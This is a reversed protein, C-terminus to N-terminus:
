WFSKAKVLKTYGDIASAMAKNERAEETGTLLGAAFGRKPVAVNAILREDVAIDNLDGLGNQLQKLALTFKKQRKVAKKQFLDDFFETAYRL